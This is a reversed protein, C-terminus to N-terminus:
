KIAFHAAAIISKQIQPFSITLRNIRDIISKSFILRNSPTKEVIVRYYVTANDESYCVKEM